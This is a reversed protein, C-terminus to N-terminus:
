QPGDAQEQVREQAVVIFDNKGVRTRLVSESDNRDTSSMRVNSTEVNPFNDSSAVKNKM